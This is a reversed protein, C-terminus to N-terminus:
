GPETDGNAQNTSSMTITLATMTTLRTAMVIPMVVKPLIITGLWLIIQQFLLLLLHGLHFSQFVILQLLLSKGLSAGISENDTSSSFLPSTLIIPLKKNQSRELSNGLVLALSISSDLSASSSM